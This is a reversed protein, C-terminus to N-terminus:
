NGIQPKLNRNQKESSELQRRLDEIDFDKRQLDLRLKQIIEEHGRCKHKIPSPSRM